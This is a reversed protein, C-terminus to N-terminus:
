RNKHIKRDIIVEDIKDRMDELMVIGAKDEYDELVEEILMDIATMIREWKQMM